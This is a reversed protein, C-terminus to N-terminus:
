MMRERVARREEGLTALEKLDIVRFPWTFWNGGSRMNPVYMDALLEDAAQPWTWFDLTTSYSENVWSLMNPYRFKMWASRLEAEAVAAEPSSPLRMPSGQFYTSIWHAAVEGTYGLNSSFIAGAIAFDRNNLNKGPILGRYISTVYHTEHGAHRPPPDCLTKYDKWLSEVDQLDYTPPHRGIGLESATTEDFIDAWSSKWGTALIVVSARIKEGTSLNVSAGDADYGIARAPAIVKIKGENVLSYYAKPNALGEDNTRIGWLISNRAANPRLPSNDSVKYANLSTQELKNLIFRAITSGITTTHLFRELRTNLTIHPSLLGLFRSKRIFDPIRFTSAIFTDPTTLVNAVRRGELTLKACMDMASKGGGVVLITDDTQEKPKVKELISELRIRFESSHLIMGSFKVEKARELSLEDPIKPNSCGGTALVIRAFSLVKVTHTQLDKVEVEWSEKQMRRVTTIETEFAFDVKNKLFTTYFTEMYNCMGMGTIHGGTEESDEPPPMPMPSFRYEGHVNNIHLGPYVRDRSWVGGVSRDRTIVTINTFGDQLLVYANILGAVGAGLIGVPQSLVPPSSHGSM